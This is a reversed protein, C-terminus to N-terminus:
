EEDRPGLTHPVAGGNKGHHQKKNELTVIIPSPVIGPTKHFFIWPATLSNAIPPPQSSRHIIANSVKGSVADLKVTTYATSSRHPSNRPAAPSPRRSFTLITRQSFSCCTQGLSSRRQRRHAVVLHRDRVALPNTNEKLFPAYHYSSTNVFQHNCETM